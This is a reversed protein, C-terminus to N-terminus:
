RCVFPELEEGSISLLCPGIAGGQDVDDCRHVSVGRIQKEEYLGWHVWMTPGYDVCEAIPAVSYVVVWRVGRELRVAKRFAAEWIM